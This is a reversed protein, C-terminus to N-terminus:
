YIHISLAAQKNKYERVYFLVTSPTFFFSFVGRVIFIIIYFYPIHILIITYKLASHKSMVFLESKSYFYEYNRDIKYVRQIEVSNMKTTPEVSMVYAYHM